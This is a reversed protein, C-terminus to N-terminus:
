KGGNKSQFTVSPVKPGSGHIGIQLAMAGFTARPDGSSQPNQDLEWMGVQATVKSTLAAGARSQGLIGDNSTASEPVMVPGCRSRLPLNLSQERDRRSCGHRPADQWRSADCPCPQARLCM